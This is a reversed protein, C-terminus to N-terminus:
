VPREISWRAILLGIAIVHVILAILGVGVLTDTGDSKLIPRKLIQRNIVGCIWSWHFMVHVTIGLTLVSLTTFQINQWDVVDRGWLTWGDADLGVPFVFQLVAAVWMLTIFNILLFMDLYFNILSWSIRTRKAATDPSDPMENFLQLEGNNITFLEPQGLWESGLDSDSFDDQFQPFVVSCPLAVFLLFILPKM